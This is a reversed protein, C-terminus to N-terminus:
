SAKFHLLCYLMFPLSFSLHHIPFWYFQKCQNLKSFFNFNTNALRAELTCLNLSSGQLSVLLPVKIEMAVSFKKITHIDASKESQNRPLCAIRIGAPNDAISFNRVGERLLPMYNGPFVSKLLDGDGGNIYMYKAM